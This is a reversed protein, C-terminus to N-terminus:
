LNLSLATYVQPDLSFVLHCFSSDLPEIFLLTKAENSRIIATLIQKNMVGIDGSLSELRKLFTLSHFVSRCRTSFTLFCRVNPGASPDSPWFHLPGTKM